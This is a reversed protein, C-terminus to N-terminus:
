GDNARAKRLLKPILIVFACTHILAWLLLFFDLFRFITALLLIPMVIGTINNINLSVKGLFSGLIGESTIAMADGQKQLFIKQFEDGIFRPFIYFLSTWCGLFLFVSRGIDIGLFYQISSLYHDPHTYVGIGASIFLLISMTYANLDDIFSGYNSSSHTARAVNGDVFELLAWINLIVAGIIMGSYGGFALLIGGFCGIVIGIGTVTNASIGLRIFLWAIYFSIKRLVFYGWLNNRIIIRKEEPYTSRIDAITINKGKMIGEVKININIEYRENVEIM